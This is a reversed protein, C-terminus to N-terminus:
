AKKFLSTIILIGIVSVITVTIATILAGQIPSLTTLIDKVYEYIVDKWTLAILLSLGTVLGTSIIKKAEQLKEKKSWIGSAIRRGTKKIM